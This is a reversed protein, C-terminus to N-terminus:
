LYCQCIVGNGLIIKNKFLIHMLLRSVMKMYM